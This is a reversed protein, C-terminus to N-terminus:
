NEQFHLTNNITMNNNQTGPPDLAVSRTGVSSCIYSVRAHPAWPPTDGVGLTGGGGGLVLGGSGGGGTGPAVRNDGLCSNIDRTLPLGLSLLEGVPARIDSCDLNPLGLNARPLGGRGKDAAEVHELEDLEPSAPAADAAAYRADVSDSSAHM